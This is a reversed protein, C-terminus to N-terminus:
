SATSIAVASAAMIQNLQKATDFQADFWQFSARYKAATEQAAQIGTLQYDNSGGSCFFALRLGEKVADATAAPSMVAVALLAAVVIAAAASIPRTRALEFTQRLYEIAM